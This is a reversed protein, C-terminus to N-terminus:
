VIGLGAQKFPHIQLLTKHSRLHLYYINRGFGALPAHRATKGEFQQLLHMGGQVASFVDQHHATGKLRKLLAPLFELGDEPFVSVNGGGRRGAGLQKGIASIAQHGDQLGIGKQGLLVEAAVFARM